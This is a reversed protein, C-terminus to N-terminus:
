DRTIDSHVDAEVGNPTREVTISQRREGPEFYRLQVEHLDRQQMISEALATISQTSHSCPKVPDTPSTMVEELTHARLHRIPTDAWSPASPESQHLRPCHKDAHFVTSDDNISFVTTVDGHDCGHTAMVEVRTGDHTFGAPKYWDPQNSM